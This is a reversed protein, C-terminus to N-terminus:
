RNKAEGRKRLYRLLAAYTVLEVVTLFIPLRYPKLDGLYHELAEGAWYGACVF